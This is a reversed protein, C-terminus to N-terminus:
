KQKEPKHVHVDGGDYRQGQMRKLVMEVDRIDDFTLLWKFPNIGSQEMRVLTFGYEKIFRKLHERDMDPHMPNKLEFVVQDHHVREDKGFLLKLHPYQQQLVQKARECDVTSFFNIFIVRSGNLPKDTIHRVRCRVELCHHELIDSDLDIDFPIKPIFITRSPM